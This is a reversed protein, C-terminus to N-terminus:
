AREAALARSGSFIGLCVAISDYGGAIIAPVICAIRCRAWHYWARAKEKTVRQGPAREPALVHWWTGAM